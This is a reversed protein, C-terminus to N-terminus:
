LSVWRVKIPIFGRIKAYELYDNRRVHIGIFLDYKKKKNVKRITAEAQDVFEPRFVFNREFAEAFGPAFHPYVINMGPYSLLIAHGKTWNKAEVQFLDQEDFTIWPEPM